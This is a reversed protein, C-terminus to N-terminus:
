GLKKALNQVDPHFYRQLMRLDRHGTVAGLELVNLRESLRSTAEHRLDHLHFDPLGANLRAREWAQRIANATLPFVRGDISRPLCRLVDVARGTLPVSRASGNKTIPLFAVRKELDVNAWRLALLEGRRMASELALEVFPKLWTNRIGKSWRGNELRKAPALAALLRTQEEATLRRERPRNPSPKRIGRVPNAAIVQWERQAMALMASLTQLERLCTSPTVEKLRQDRYSAVISQSLSTLGYRGLHRDITRLRVIETGAGRLRPVVEGLYRKIVDSVTLDVPRQRPLFCGTDIEREVARAWRQADDKSAFTKTLDPHGKRAIRAQWRGARKRFSAM